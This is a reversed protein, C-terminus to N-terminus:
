SISTWWKRSNHSRSIRQLLLFFDHSAYSIFFDSAANLDYFHWDFIKRIGNKMPFFDDNKQGWIGWGGERGAEVIYCKRGLHIQASM